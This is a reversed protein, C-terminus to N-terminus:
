CKADCKRGRWFLLSIDEDVPVEEAAAAAEFAGAFLAAFEDDNDDDILLFSIRRTSRPLIYIVYIDIYIKGKKAM